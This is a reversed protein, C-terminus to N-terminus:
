YMLSVENLAKITVHMNLTHIFFYQGSYKGKVGLNYISYMGSVIRIHRNIHSKGHPKM